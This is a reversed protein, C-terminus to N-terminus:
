INWFVVEKEGIRGSSFVGLVTDFCQWLSPLFCVFDTLPFPAAQCWWWRFGFIVEYQFFKFREFIRIRPRIEPNSSSTWNSGLIFISPFKNIFFYHNRIVPPRVLWRSISSTQVEQMMWWNVRSVKTPIISLTISFTEENTFHWSVCASLIFHVPIIYTCLFHCVSPFYYWISLIVDYSFSCENSM